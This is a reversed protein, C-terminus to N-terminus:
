AIRQQPDKGAGGLLPEGDHGAAQGDGSRIHLRQGALTRLQLLAFVDPHQGVLRHFGEAEHASELRHGLEPSGAIQGAPHGVVQQPQPAVQLPGLPQNPEQSGYEAPKRAFGPGPSM